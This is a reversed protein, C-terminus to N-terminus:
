LLDQGGFVVSGSVRAPPDLLNLIALATLSKGSGSEGVLGVITGAPIELSVEDVAVALEGASATASAGGRPFAVSLRRLSVTADSM